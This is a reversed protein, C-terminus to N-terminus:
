MGTLFANQLNNHIRVIILRLRETPIDLIPKTGGAELRCEPFIGTPLRRCLRCEPFNGAPLRRYLRGRLEGRLSPIAHGYLPVAHVSVTFGRKQM